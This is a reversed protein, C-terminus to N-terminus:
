TAAFLDRLMHLNAHIEDDPALFSPSMLIVRDLHDSLRSVGARVTDRTGSLSLVEIMADSVGAIQLDLDGVAAAARINAAEAAFGHLSLIRDFYPIAAYLAIHRRSRERAAAPDDDVSAIVVSTRDITAPDRGARRASAALRPLAIERYYKPTTCINFVVGDAVAGTLELMRNGVAALYLPVSVPGGRGRAYDSVTFFEGRHSFSRDEAVSWVGRLVAIYDALRDVPREYPIGHLNANFHPPGVGLGYRFRGDSLDHLNAATLASVVPSRAWNAVATGIGMRSTCAAVAALGVFPERDIEPFWVGDFGADDLSVAFDVAERYGMGDGTVMLGVAPGTAARGTM